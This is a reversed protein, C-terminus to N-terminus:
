FGNYSASVIVHDRKYRDVVAIGHSFGEGWVRPFVVM